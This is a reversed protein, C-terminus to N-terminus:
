VHWAVLLMVNVPGEHRCGHGMGHTQNQKTGCLRRMASRPTRGGGATASRNLFAASFIVGVDLEDVWRVCPFQARVVLSVIGDIMAHVTPTHANNDDALKTSRHRTCNRLYEHAFGGTERLVVKVDV